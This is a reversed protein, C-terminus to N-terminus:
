IFTEHILFFVFNWKIIIYYTIFSYKLYLVIYQKKNREPNEQEVSWYKRMLLQKLFTPLDFLKGIKKFFLEKM